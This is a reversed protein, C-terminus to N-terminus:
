QIKLSKPPKGSPEAPLSDAQLAPSRPKIGPNPLNGQLLSLSGVGTNHGPSNEHVIIDMPNCSDSVALHSESESHINEPVCTDIIGLVYGCNENKSLLHRSRHSDRNGHLRCLEQILDVTWLKCPGVHLPRLLWFRGRANQLQWALLQKGGGGGLLKTNGYLRNAINHDNSILLFPM